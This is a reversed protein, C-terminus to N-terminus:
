GRAVQRLERTRDLAYLIPVLLLLSLNGVAMPTVSPPPPGFYAGVNLAFLALGLAALGLAGARSRARTVSAYLGIGIALMTAEVCFALLRHDWLSLGLRTGGPLITMDPRHSIWDLVWHSAVGALLIAAVRADRHLVFYAASFLLGWGTTALLSHSFPFYDLVVPMAGNIHTSIHAREVGLLIFVSWFVDVLVAASVLWALSARPAWRKSAFGVAIHGIGM